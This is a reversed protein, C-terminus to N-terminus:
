KQSEMFDKTFAIFQETRSNLYKGKQWVLGIEQSITPAIPIGKVDNMNKLLSSYLIAGGLNERVFAQITYLQSANLIVHPKVKITDFLSLLTHNQVSDTNYMILPEDKLMEISISKEKALPHSKSICFMLKDSLLQCSNLKNTEYFNLNVLALDLVDDLVLNAARVSGYEFLEVPINPYKKYFATLMDPFFVTSLLPPIGIRIPTIQKGLDYLESTTEHINNLLVSAKQYFEEGEKTLVMHNKTHSFM